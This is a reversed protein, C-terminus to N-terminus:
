GLPRLHAVSELVVCPVGIQQLTLAVSLGGIGGGAVLVPLRDGPPTEPRRIMQLMVRRTSRPCACPYLFGSLGTDDGARAHNGRQIAPQNPAGVLLFPLCHPC